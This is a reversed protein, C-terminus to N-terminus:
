LISANGSRRFLLLAKRWETYWIDLESRRYCWCERGGFSLFKLFMQKALPSLMGIGHLHLWLHKLRIAHRRMLLRTMRWGSKLPKLCSIFWWVLPEWGKWLFHFLEKWSSWGRIQSSIITSTVFADTVGAREEPIAVAWVLHQSHSKGQEFRWGLEVRGPRRSRVYSKAKWHSLGPLNNGKGGLGDDSNSGFM